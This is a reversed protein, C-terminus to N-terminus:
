DKEKLLSESFHKAQYDPIEFPQMSESSTCVRTRDNKNKGPFVNLTYTQNGKLVIKLAPHKLADKEKDYIYKDCKLKSLVDLLSELRKPDVKGKGKQEWVPKPPQTKQTDSAENKTDTKEPEKKLFIHTKNKQTVVIEKIDEKNFSLVNKDRLGELTQDFIPKINTAAHYVRDDNPLKVHTHRYSEATKGIDFERLLAGDSSWAKVTIKKDPGLDYIDYNKSESVLATLSFKEISDLMSTTKTNDALYDEPMIYWNTNKKHLTIHKDKKTIEIKAIDDRGLTPIEPLDYFSRNPNKFFILYLALVVIIAGLILYERKLKM